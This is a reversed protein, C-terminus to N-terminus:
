SSRERPYKVGVTVTHFESTGGQGVGGRDERLEIREDADIRTMERAVIDSVFDKNM